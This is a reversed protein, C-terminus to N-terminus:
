TLNMEDCEMEAVDPSSWQIDANDTTLEGLYLVNGNHLNQLESYNGILATEFDKQTKYYNVENIQYNPQLSLFDKCAGFALLLIIFVPIYKKM